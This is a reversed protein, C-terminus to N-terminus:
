LDLGNAILHLPLANKCRESAFMARELDAM